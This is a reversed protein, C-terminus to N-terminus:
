KKIATTTTNMITYHAISRGPHILHTNYCAASPSVDTVQYVLSKLYKTGTETQARQMGAASLKPLSANIMVRGGVGRATSM